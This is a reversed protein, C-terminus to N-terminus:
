HTVPSSCNHSPIGTSMCQACPYCFILLEVVAIKHVLEFVLRAIGTARVAM